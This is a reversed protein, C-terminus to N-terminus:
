QEGKQKYPRPPLPLLGRERTAKHAYNAALGLVAALSNARDPDVLYTAIIEERQERTM